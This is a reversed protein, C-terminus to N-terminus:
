GVVHTKTCRTRVAWLTFNVDVLLVWWFSKFYSVYRVSLDGWILKQTLFWLVRCDLWTKRKNTKAKFTGEKPGNVGFSTWLTLLFERHHNDNRTMALFNSTTECCAFTLTLAYSPFAINESQNDSWLPPNGGPGTWIKDPWTRDLDQRPTGGPGLWPVGGSLVLPLGGKQCSWPTYPVGEATM